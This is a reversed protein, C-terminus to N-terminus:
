YGSAEYPTRTIATTNESLGTANPARLIMRQATGSWPWRPPRPRVDTGLDSTKRHVKKRVTGGEVVCGLVVDAQEKECCTVWTLGSGAAAPLPKELLRGQKARDAPQPSIQGNNPVASSVRLSLCGWSAAPPPRAQCQQFSLHDLGHGISFLKIICRSGSSILFDM